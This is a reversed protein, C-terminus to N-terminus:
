CPKGRKKGVAKGMAENMAQREQWAKLEIRYSELAEEYVDFVCPMCGSRCCDEIGPRVPPQPAPDDVHSSRKM